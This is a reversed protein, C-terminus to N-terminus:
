IYQSLNENVVGIFHRIRRMHIDNTKLVKVGCDYFPIQRACSLGARRATPM